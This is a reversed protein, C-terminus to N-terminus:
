PLHLLERQQEALAPIAQVILFIAILTVLVIVIVGSLTAVGGFLRDGLRGTSARDGELPRRGDPGPLEDVASVGTVSSM